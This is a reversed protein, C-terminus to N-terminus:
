WRKTKLNHVHAHGGQPIDATAQGIDHSYKIITDGNKIAALAVKHGLPIDDIATVSITEDSAMLWGSLRKGATADEIVVVGVTDGEEHVLYDPASM